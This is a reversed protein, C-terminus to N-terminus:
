HTPIYLRRGPVPRSSRVSDTCRRHNSRVKWCQVQRWPTDTPTACRKTFLIPETWATVIFDACHRQCYCAEWWHPWRESCRLAIRESNEGLHSVAQVDRMFNHCTIHLAQLCNWHNHMRCFFFWTLSFRATVRKWIASCSLDTRAFFICGRHYAGNGLVQRYFFFYTNLSTCLASLGTSCDLYM